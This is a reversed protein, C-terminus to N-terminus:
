FRALEMYEGFIKGALSIGSRIDDSLSRQKAPDDAVVLFSLHVVILIGIACLICSIKM